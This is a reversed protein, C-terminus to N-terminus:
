VAKVNISTGIEGTVSCFYDEAILVASAENMAYVHFREGGSFEVAHMKDRGNCEMEQLTGYGTAKYMPVEEFTCWECVELFRGDEYQETIKNGCECTAMETIKM